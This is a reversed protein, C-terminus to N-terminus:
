RGTQVPGACILRLLALTEAAAFLPREHHAGRRIRNHINRSFQM